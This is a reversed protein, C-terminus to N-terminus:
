WDNVCKTIIKIFNYYPMVNLAIYVDCSITGQCISMYKNFTAIKISAQKVVLFFLHVM